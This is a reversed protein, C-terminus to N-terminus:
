LNISVNSSGSIEIGLLESFADLGKKAYEKIKGIVRKLIKQYFKTVMAKMNKFIKKGAKKLDAFSIENIMYNTDLIYDVAEQQIIKKVISQLRFVTSKGRGSSKFSVTSKVQGAYKSAWKEDLKSMQASGDTGFVLLENAIPKM